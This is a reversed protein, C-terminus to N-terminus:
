DMLKAKRLALELDCIRDLLSSVLEYSAKIIKVQSTSSCNSCYTDKGVIEGCNLCITKYTKRKM